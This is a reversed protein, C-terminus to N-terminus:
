KGGTGPVVFHRCHEVAIWHAPTAFNTSAISEFDMEECECANVSLSKRCDFIAPHAGRRAGSVEVGWLEASDPTSFGGSFVVSVVVFGVGSVM